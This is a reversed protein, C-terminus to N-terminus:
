GGLVRLFALHYRSGRIFRIPAFRVQDKMPTSERLERVYRTKRNEEREKADKATFSLAFSGPIV